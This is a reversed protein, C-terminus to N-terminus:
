NERSVIKQLVFYIVSDHYITKVAEIFVILDAQRHFIDLAAIGEVLEISMSTLSFHQLSYISYLTVEDSVM